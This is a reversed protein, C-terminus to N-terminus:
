DIADAANEVAGQARDIDRSVKSKAADATNEAARKTNEIDSKVKSQAADATEKASQKASQSVDEATEGVKQANERSGKAAKEGVDEAAEGVNEGIRRVREGLPTGSRYNEVYQQASDVSKEDINRQANDVLAKAKAQAESTDTRPDVDSYDNMGGQYPSTVAGSPVEQRADDATKALVKNGGCATSVLLLIGALFVTLVRELRISKLWAIVKKM